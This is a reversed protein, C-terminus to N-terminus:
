PLVTSLSIAVHQTKIQCCFMCLSCFSFFSSSTFQLFNKNQIHLFIGIIRRKEHTTYVRLFLNQIKLQAFQSFFDSYNYYVEILYIVQLFQMLVPLHLFFSYLYYIFILHKETKIFFQFLIEGGKQCFCM